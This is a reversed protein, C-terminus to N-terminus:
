ELILSFTQLINTRELKRRLFWTAPNLELRTLYLCHKAADHNHTGTTYHNDNCSKSVYSCLHVHLTTKNLIYHKLLERRAM